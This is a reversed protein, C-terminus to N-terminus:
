AKCYLGKYYCNAIAVVTRVERASNYILYLFLLKIIVRQCPLAVTNYPRRQFDISFGSIRGGAMRFRKFRHSGFNAPTVVDRIDVVVCFQM